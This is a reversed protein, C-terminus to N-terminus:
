RETTVKVVKLIEGDRYIIKKTLNGNDDYEFATGNMLIGKVFYGSKDVKGNLNVVTSNGTLNFDYYDKSVSKVSDTPAAIFKLTEAFKSDNYVREGVKNGKDDYIALNSSNKGDKWEGEYMPKGNEYFYKQVGTRKGSEDFNWDYALQGNSHYLYYKGVWKNEMWTGQEQLTGDEFYLSAFGIPKNDVYTISYKVNGNPYYFKWVGIKKSSSYYGEELTRKTFKDKSIWYGQKQMSADLRNITDGLSAESQAMAFFGVLLLAITVLGKFLRLGGMIALYNYLIFTANKKLKYM